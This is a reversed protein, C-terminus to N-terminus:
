MRSPSMRTARRPQRSQGSFEGVISLAIRDLGSLAVRNGAPGQKLRLGDMDSIHQRDPIRNRMGLSSLPLERAAEKANRQHALARRMPTMASAGRRAHSRERSLCISSTVSRQRGPRSRSRSRAATRRPAPALRAIERSASSCCVAVASTSLTMLREANSRRARARLWRPFAAAREAAGLLRHRRREVAVDTWCESRAARIEVPRGISIRSRRGDAARSSGDGIPAGTADALVTQM